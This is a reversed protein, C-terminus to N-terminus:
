IYKFVFGKCHSAKGSLVRSVNSFENRAERVTNFVKILNGSKDYCGIKRNKPKAPLLRDFKTWSWLYDGCKNNGIRLTQSIQLYTKGYLNAVQNCSEYEALFEGNLNYQYIPGTHKNCKNKVFMEIKENSIYYGKVKTKGLIGRQVVGLSTNLYKAVEYMSNFEKYFTGDDNYLFTSIRQVTNKHKSIDLVNAYELSWFSEYACCKNDIAIKISTGSNGGCSIAALHFSPYCNIFNGNLDYRYVPIDHRPPDGGGLAINYVDPRKLFESDVLFAEMKKADERNDFIHLTTRKFADFGYKKVAHQFPCTPHKISSPAYISVGNGLYGDWKYPDTTDHIGIYIKNNKTNLTLYVITYKKLNSEM